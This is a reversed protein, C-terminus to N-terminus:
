RPRQRGPRTGRIAEVSADSRAGTQPTSVTDVRVRRLVPRRLSDWGLTWLTRDRPDFLVVAGSDGRPTQPALLVPPLTSAASAPVFVRCIALLALGLMGAPFFYLLLKYAFRSLHGARELEAQAKSEAMALEESAAAQRQRQIAYLKERYNGLQTLWLYVRIGSLIAALLCIGTLVYLLKVPWGVTRLWDAQSPALAVAGVALGVLWNAVQRYWDLTEPIPSDKKVGTDPSPSTM